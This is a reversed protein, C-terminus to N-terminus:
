NLRESKSVLLVFTLIVKDFQGLRAVWFVYRDM